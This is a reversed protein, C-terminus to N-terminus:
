AAQGSWRAVGNFVAYGGANQNFSPIFTGSVESCTSQEVTM